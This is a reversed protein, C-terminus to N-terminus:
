LLAFNDKIIQEYKYTLEKTKCVKIIANMDPYSSSRSDIMDNLGYSVAVYSASKTIILAYCLLISDDCRM